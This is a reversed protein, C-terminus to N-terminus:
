WNWQFRKRNSCNGFPVPKGAPRVAGGISCAKGRASTRANEISSEAVVSISSANDTCPRPLPVTVRPMWM